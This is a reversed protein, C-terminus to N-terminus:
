EAGLDGALRGQTPTGDYFLFPEQGSKTIM